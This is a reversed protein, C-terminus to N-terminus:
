ADYNVMVEPFLGVVEGGMGWGIDGSSDGSKGSVGRFDKIRPMVLDVMKSVFGWMDEGRLESTVSCAKGKKIGFQMISMKADHTTARVNTIAQLVM